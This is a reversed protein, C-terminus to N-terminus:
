KVAREVAGSMKSEQVPVDIPTTPASRLKRVEDRLQVLEPAADNKLAIRVDGYGLEDIVSKVCYVVYETVAKSEVPLNYITESDADYM